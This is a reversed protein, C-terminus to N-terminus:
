VSASGYAPSEDIIELPYSPSRPHLYVASPQAKLAHFGVCWWLHADEDLEHGVRRIIM